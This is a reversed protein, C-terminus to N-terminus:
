IRCRGTKGGVALGIKLNDDKEKRGKYTAGNDMGGHGSDIMITPAM